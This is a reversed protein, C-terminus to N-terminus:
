VTKVDIKDYQTHTGLWRILVGQRQYDIITVLRYKNGAINFVVRDSAFSANGYTARVEAPTRWSAKTAVAHWARLPMEADRHQPTEYFVRLRSFAIVRM